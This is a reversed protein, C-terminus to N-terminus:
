FSAPTAVNSIYLPYNPTTLYTVREYQHYMPMNSYQFVPINAYKYISMSTYQCVPLHAYQNIPM